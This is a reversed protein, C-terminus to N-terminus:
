LIEIEISTEKARQYEWNAGRSTEWGPIFYLKKIKNLSFLPAYFDDLINVYKQNGAYEQIIRHFSEEFPMQDFISVGKNQLEQITQNLFKLNEEISGKGGNTIPGCVQVVDKPMRNIIQVAIEYLENITKANKLKDFDGETWYRKTIQNIEPYIM